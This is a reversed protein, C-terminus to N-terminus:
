LPKVVRSMYKRKFLKPRHQRLCALIETLDNPDKIEFSAILKLVHNDSVLDTSKIAIKVKEKGTIAKPLKM